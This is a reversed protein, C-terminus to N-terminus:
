IIFNVSKRGKWTKHLKCVRFYTKLINWLLQRRLLVAASFIHMDFALRAHKCATAGGSTKRNNIPLTHGAVQHECLLLLFTSLWLHLPCCSSWDGTALVEKEDELLGAALDQPVCRSQMRCGTLSALLCM